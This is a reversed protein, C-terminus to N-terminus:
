TLVDLKLLNVYKIMKNTKKLRLQNFIESSKAIAFYSKKLSQSKVREKNNYICLDGKDTQEIITARKNYCIFRCHAVEKKQLSLFVTRARKHACKREHPQQNKRKTEQFSEACITWFLLLARRCKQAFASSKWSVSPALSGVRVAGRCLCSPRRFPSGCASVGVAGCTHRPPHTGRYRRLLNAGIRPPFGGGLARAGGRCRAGTKKRKMTRPPHSYFFFPRVSHKDTRRPKSGRARFSQRSRARCFALLM